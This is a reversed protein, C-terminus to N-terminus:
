AVPLVFDLAIVLAPENELGLNDEEAIHPLLEDRAFVSKHNVPKDDRGHNVEVAEEDSNVGQQREIGSLLLLSEVRSSEKLFDEDRVVHEFV